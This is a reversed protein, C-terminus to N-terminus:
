RKNSGGGASHANLELLNEAARCFGGVEIM